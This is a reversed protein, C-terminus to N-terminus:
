FPSSMMTIFLLLIICQLVQNNFRPYKPPGMFFTLSFIIVNLASAARSSAMFPTVLRESNIRFAMRAERSLAQGKVTSFSLATLYPTVPCASKSRLFALGQM